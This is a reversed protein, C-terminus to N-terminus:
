EALQRKKRTNMMLRRIEVLQKENQKLTTSGVTIPEAHLDKVGEIEGEPLL